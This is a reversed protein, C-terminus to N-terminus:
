LERIRSPQTALNEGLVSRITFVTETQAKPELQSAIEDTLDSRKKDARDSVPVGVKGRL